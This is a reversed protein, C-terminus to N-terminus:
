LLLMYSQVCVNCFQADTSPIFFMFPFNHVKFFWDCDPISNRHIHSFLKFNKSPMFGYKGSLRYENQQVNKRGKTNQRGLPVM